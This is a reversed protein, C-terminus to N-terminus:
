RRVAALPLVALCDSNEADDSGDLYENGGSQSLKTDHVINYEETKM